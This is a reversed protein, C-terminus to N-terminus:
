QLCWCLCNDLSISSYLAESEDEDEYSYVVYGEDFNGKIVYEDNIIYAGCDMSISAM